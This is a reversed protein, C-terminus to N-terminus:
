VGPKAATGTEKEYFLIKSIIKKPSGGFWQALVCIPIANSHNV